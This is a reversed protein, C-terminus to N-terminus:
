ADRMKTPGWVGLMRSLNAWEGVRSVLCQRFVVGGKKRGWAGMFWQVRPRLWPPLPLFAAPLSSSQAAHFPPLRLVFPAEYAAAEAGMVWSEGDKAGTPGASLPGPLTGICSIIFTHCPRIRGEMQRRFFGTPPEQHRIRPHLKPSAAPGKLHPLPCHRKIPALQRGAGPAVRM